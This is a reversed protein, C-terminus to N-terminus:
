FVEIIKGGLYPDDFKNLNITKLLGLNTNLYGQTTDLNQLTLESFGLGNIDEYFTLFDNGNDMPSLYLDVGVPMARLINERIRDMQSYDISSFGEFFLFLKGPFSEILTIKTAGTLQKAIFIITNRDGGANNITIRTQIAARYESDTRGLRSEGVIIGIEDLQEGTATEISRKDILNWLEDELIDLQKSIISIINNLSSSNKFQELAVEKASLSHDLIKDM